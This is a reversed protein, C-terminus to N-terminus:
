VTAMSLEKDVHFYPCWKFVRMPSGFVYWVGRVWIRHYDEENGLKILVHRSDMLGVIALEKLDLSKIFKRLNEMSPLGKSFKRILSNLDAQSFVVM